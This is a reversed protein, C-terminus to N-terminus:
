LKGLPASISSRTSTTKFGLMRLLATAIESGSANTIAEQAEKPFAHKNAVIWRRIQETTSSM